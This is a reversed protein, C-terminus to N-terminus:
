SSKFGDALLKALSILEANAVAIEAYPPVTGVNVGVAVVVGGVVIVVVGDVVVGGDVVVVGDAVKVPPGFVHGGPWVSRCRLCPNVPVLLAGCTVVM